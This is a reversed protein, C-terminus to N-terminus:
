EPQSWSEFGVPCYPEMPIGHTIVPPSHREVPVSHRGIPPSCDVIAPSVFGLIGLAPLLSASAAFLVGVLVGTLAALRTRRSTM